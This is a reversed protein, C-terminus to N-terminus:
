MPTVIIQSELQEVDEESLHGARDTLANAAGCASALKAADPVSDGRVLGAALGAAFSDGSGIASVPQIVPSPVHWFENGNSVIAGAKGQTVVAWTPGRRILEKIADRLQQDTDIPLGLTRALESRNPKVLFPQAQMALSLPEGAADVISKVDAASAIEVCQRYFDAPVGPALSGSLVLLSAMAMSDSVYRLLLEVDGATVEAPEEILETATGTSRDIVTVCLRTEAAVGLFVHAIGADDLDARMAGARLGGLFGVAAADEGLTTLVRAVNVNKGAAYDAVATARNVDDITLRDFTMSRSMAPTTGLCIIM